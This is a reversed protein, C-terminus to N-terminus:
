HVAKRASEYLEELAKRHREAFESIPTVYSVVYLEGNEAMVTHAVEWGNSQADVSFGVSASSVSLVKGYNKIEKELDKLYYEVLFAKEPDKIGLVIKKYLDNLRTEDGCPENITSTGGLLREFTFCGITEADCVVVTLSDKELFDEFFTQLAEKANSAAEKM